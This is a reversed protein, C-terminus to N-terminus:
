IAQILIEATVARERRLHFENAVQNVRSVSYIASEHFCHQQQASQASRANILLNDRSSSFTSGTAEVDSESLM